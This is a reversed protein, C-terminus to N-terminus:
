QKFELDMEFECLLTTGGPKRADDLEQRLGPTADIEQATLVRGKSRPMDKLIKRTFSELDADPKAAHWELVTQLILALQWQDLGEAAEQISPTSANPSATAVFQVAKAKRPEKMLTPM